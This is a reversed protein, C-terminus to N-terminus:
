NVEKQKKTDEIGLERLKEKLCRNCYFRQQISLFLIREFFHSSPQSCRDCDGILNWKTSSM